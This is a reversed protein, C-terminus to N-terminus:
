QQPALLLDQDVFVTGGRASWALVKADGVAAPFEASFSLIGNRTALQIGGMVPDLDAALITGISVPDDDGDTALYVTFLTGDPVVEGTNLKIVESTFDARTPQGPGGPRTITALITPEGTPMAPAATFLGLETIQAVVRNNAPDAVGGVLDWQEETENWRYIRISSEDLGVVERDLWRITITAPAALAQRNPFFQFFGGIGNHPVDVPGSVALQDQVPPADATDVPRYQFAMLSIEFPQGNDPEKSGDVELSVGSPSFEFDIVSKAAGIGKTVLLKGKKYLDSAKTVLEEINSAMEVLRAPGTTPILPDKEAYKELAYGEGGLVVGRQTVYKTASDLKVEIEANFPLDDCNAKGTVKQIVKCLGLTYKRSSGDEFQHDYSSAYTLLKVVADSIEGLTFPAAYPIARSVAILGNILLIQNRVEDVKSPSDLKITYTMSRRYGDGYDVFDKGLVALGFRKTSLVTVVVRDSSQTDLNIPLEFKIGAIYRGDAKLLKKINKDIFREIKKAIASDPILAISASFGADMNLEGRQEIFPTVVSPTGKTLEAGLAMASKASGSAGISIGLDKVKLEDFKGLSLTLGSLKFAADETFQVQAGFATRYRETNFPDPILMDIIPTLLPTQQTGFLHAQDLAPKLAAGMFAKRADADMPSTFQYRDVTSAEVGALLSGSVAGGSSEGALQVDFGIKGLTKEKKLGAEVGVAQLASVTYSKDAGSISGELGLDVGYGGKVAGDVIEYFKGSVKTAAGATGNATFTRDVVDITYDAGSACDVPNDIARVKVRVQSGMGVTPPLTVKVGPEFTSDDTATPTRPNGVVGNHDTIFKLTQLIGNGQIEVEVAAGGVPMGTSRSVVKFHRLSSGGVMVSSNGSPNPDPNLVSLTNAECGVAITLRNGQRSGGNASAAVIEAAILQSRGPAQWPASGSRTERSGLSGVSDCRGTLTSCVSVGDLVGTGANMVDYKLTTQKFLPLAVSGDYRVGDVELYQSIEIDSPPDCDADPNLLGGPDAVPLPVPTTAAVPPTPSAPDLIYFYFGGYNNRRNGEKVSRQPGDLDITFAVWRAVNLDATQDLTPNLVPENKDGLTFYDTKKDAIYKENDSLNREAADDEPDFDTSLNELFKSEGGALSIRLPPLGSKPTVRLGPGTGQGRYMVVPLGDADRFGNNAVRPIVQLTVGKKAKTTKEGVFGFNRIRQEREQADPLAALETDYIAKTVGITDDIFNSVTAIFVNADEDDRIDRRTPLQVDGKVRWFKHYVDFVEQATFLGLRQKVTRGAMSAIFDEFGACPKESWTAEDASTIALCANDDYVPGNGPSRSTRRVNTVFWNNASGNTRPDAVMRAFVTRIGAKGADHLQKIFLDHYAHTANSASAIRVFAKTKYLNFKQLNAWEHGELRPIHTQTKLLELIEDLPKGVVSFGPISVYEGGLLWLLLLQQRGMALDGSTDGQKNQPPLINIRGADFGDKRFPFFTIDDFTLTRGGVEIEKPTGDPNIFQETLKQAVCDAKTEGPTGEFYADPIFVEYDHDSLGPQYNDQCAKEVNEKWICSGSGQELISVVPNPVGARSIPVGCSAAAELGAAMGKQLALIELKILDERSGSIQKGGTNRSMDIRADCCLSDLAWTDIGPPTPRGMDGSAVYFIGRPEDLALLRGGGNAYLGTPSKWVIRDDEGDGDADIPLLSKPTSFDLLYVREDGNAGGAPDNASLLVRRNSRDAHVSFVMQPLPVFTLQELNQLDTVDIVSLGRKGGAFVLNRLENQDIVGDENRDIQFSEVYDMDMLEDELDLTLSAVQALSPDYIDIARGSRSMAIVHGSGVEVRRYDGPAMTDRKFDDITIPDSEGYIWHGIDVSALGVQEIAVFALLGKDYALTDVGGAFGVATIASFNLGPLTSTIAKGGLRCPAAPNTVDYFDVGTTMLGGVGINDRSVVALDGSYTTGGGCPNQVTVGPQGSRPQIFTTVPLNKVDVVVRARKSPVFPDAIGLNGLYVPDDAVTLDFVAVHPDPFGKSRKTGLAYTRLRGDGDTKQWRALQTVPWAHGSVLSPAVRRPVFTTVSYTPSSVANDSADTVGTFSVRYTKGLKLPARPIVTLVTNGQSLRIEVDIAHGADDIMKVGQLASERDLGESFTFSLTGQPDFATLNDPVAIVFPSTKDGSIAGVNFPEDQPPVPVDFTALTTGTTPSTVYLRMRPVNFVEPLRQNNPDTYDVQVAYFDDAGGDFAYAFGGKGAVIRDEPVVLSAGTSRNIIRTETGPDITLPTVRALLAGPGNPSRVTFPVTRVAGGANKVQVEYLAADGNGTVPVVASVQALDVRTTDGRTANRIELAVTAVAITDMDVSIELTQGLVITRRDFRVPKPGEGTIASVTIADAVNGAITRRFEVVNRPFYFRQKTDLRRVIVQRDAPALDIADIVIQQTNPTITVRGALSPFCSGEQARALNVQAQWPGMVAGPFGIAVRLNAAATSVAYPDVIRGYTVGVPQVGKIFGYTRAALAGPCPPSSTSVRSGIVRGTDAVVMTPLGDIMEVQTVVWRDDFTDTASAPLSLNLYQAPEAGGFDLSIGGTYQLETKQQPTLKVPFAAEDVYNVTVVAGAPFAGAPVDVEIGNPGRLVGGDADVSSSISGDANEQEFRPVDFTTEVGAPTTIGIRLRDTLGAALIAEFSGNPAVLAVQFTKRTLNHIRVTDRSGATGQTGAVRTQGGVPISASISAAPPTPRPATDITTFTSAFADTAHRGTVDALATSVRVRYTAKAGLAVDARFTAVRNGESLAVAGPISTGDGTELTIASASAPDIPESFTVVVPSGLAVEAQGDAPTVSTVRPAVPLVRLDLRAIGNAIVLVSAYIGDNTALDLARVEAAGARGLTVYAGSANSFAVFPASSTTVFAGPLAAPVADRIVGTIFGVPQLARIVVYRGGTRIGPLPTLLGPVSVDSVIRDGAIRGVGVIELYTAGAVDVLRAVVLGTDDVLTSPRPVSLTGSSRLTAGQLSLTVAGLAEFSSGLDFGLSAVPLTELQASLDTLTGDPPVSFTEGGPSTVQGGDRGVLAPATGARAHVEVAIVGDALAAAAFTVSPSVTFFASPSTPTGPFQYAVLDEVFPEPTIRPADVFDYREVLRARVVLGSAIPSSLGLVTGVLSSFGPAYVAIKPDPSVTATADPPLTPTPVGTLLTGAVQVPPATPTTDALLWVVQTARELSAALVHNTPVAATDVFRWAGVEDDWVAVGLLVGVGVGTTDIARISAPTSFAAAGASLDVVAIPSWGAPLLGRLGQASVRTVHVDADAAMAGSAFTASAREDGVVGGLTAVVHTQASRPTLRADLAEIVAREIVLVRREVVTYGPKRIVIRADGAGLAMAYRGRADTTTAREVGSVTARVDAQAVPLGTADDYVEGAILGTGSSEGVVLTTATAQATLAATDTATATITLVTGAARTAPVSLRATYPRSSTSTMPVRDLAFDVHAVGGADAADATVEFTAGEPVTAPVTLTITPPTTDPATVIAVTTTADASNGAFDKARATFVLLSGAQASAPVSFSASFPSSTDTTIPASDIFFTVSAVGVNDDATATLVLAAGATATPPGALTVSPDTTDPAAVVKMSASASGSNGSMDTATARVVIMSGPTAVTPVTVTREYPASPHNTPDGDNITFVLGSVAVDDRADASVTVREGPLVQTPARLTVSPPARDVPAAIVATTSAAHSLGGPDTVTLTITFTGTAAYTHIPTPGTGTTDDGFNWAYTLTDGDPDSSGRGSLQLPAQANGSYPGGPNSSPQRNVPPPPPGANVTVSVTAVGADQGDSVTLRLQYAGSVSFRATTSAVLENDFTVPAPGSVTSWRYSLQGAPRGDDTAVGTVAVANTPLTITAPTASATVSPPTNTPPPPPPAPNVVVTVDGSGSLEGDSVTVRLVYTGAGGFSASSSPNSPTVFTVDGGSVKSWAYTLTSGTPLGDDTATATLNVTSTPLTISTSSASATVTPATNTPPPPPAEPNVVVTVDASSAAAGDDATFRLVFTGAQTFTASTALAGGSGFSVGTPGSVRSWTFTMPSPRGDDTATASLAVQNTPLAITTPNATVTVVPPTNEPAPEPRVTVIVTDTSTALSDNASLQLEYTGAASFTATTAATNAPSFSVTGAGSIKTWAVILTSGAPLGDDTAAGALAVSTTPLTITRDPGANVTPAVNPPPPQPLVTVTLTDSAELVGDSGVLRLDYTGAFDATFSTAASQSNGFSGPAPGSVQSWTATLSSGAPLGDDEVSGNLQVTSQPLTTQLDTGASVRPAANVPTPASITFADALVLSQRPVTVSVARSGYAATAAIDITATLESTSTVAVSRVTVGAGFTVRTQGAVFNTGGEGRVAVVVGTVGRDSATVGPLRLALIDVRPISASVGTITNLVQVSAPGIPLGAPVRVSVRRIGRAADVVTSSSAPVTVAGGTAPTFTITNNAAAPDFGTGTASWIASASVGTLEATVTQASAPRLAPAWLLLTLVSV